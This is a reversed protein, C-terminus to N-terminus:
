LNTERIRGSIFTVEVKTSDVTGDSIIIAGTYSGSPLCSKDLQGRENFIVLGNKFTNSVISVGEELKHKPAKVGNIGELITPSTKANQVVYFSGDVDFKVGYAKGDNVAKTRAMYLLSTVETTSTKLKDKKLLPKLSPTAIAALIGIVIVVILLEVFTFGRENRQIM